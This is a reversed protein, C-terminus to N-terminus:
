IFTGVMDLTGKRHCWGVCLACNLMTILSTCISIHCTRKHLICFIVDVYQVCFWEVLLTRVCKWPRSPPGKWTSYVFRVKIRGELATWFEATKAPVDDGFEAAPFTMDSVTDKLQEQEAYKEENQDEDKEENQDEDKEENQDIEDLINDIDRSDLRQVSTTLPVNSKKIFTHEDVFSLLKQQVDKLTTEPNEDLSSLYERIDDATVTATM